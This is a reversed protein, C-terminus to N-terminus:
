LREKLVYMRIKGYGKAMPLVGVYDCDVTPERALAVASGMAETVYVEGPPTIPEIRAALTVHAGFFTPERCIYDHGAFVPGYHGSLRLSLDVDLGLAQFDTERITRQIALGCKACSMADEFVVYIADGWSNRYLVRSGFSELVDSVRGMFEAHFIPLHHEELASFGKVDGFLVARPERALESANPEAPPRPKPEFESKPAVVHVPLSLAEWAAINGDTGVGSGGKGDYVAIMRLGSDLAEARIMALGMAYDACYTFLSDDNLYKGDTAYSVSGRGDLARTNCRDYCARFRAIWEPGAGAVSQEVFEDRNFPLVVHLDIGRELCQEAVIIDAGAALSGFAFGIPHADLIRAIQETVNTEQDAPFRGPQGPPAIIHGAFFMVDPTAIPDLIGTSLEAEACILKLQKRTTARATYDAAKIVSADGLAACARAVDGLVMAAEAVTAAHWYKGIESDPEESSCADLTAQALTASKERDGGLYFLTAANVAPYSNKERRYVDEYAEAAGILLASRQAEPAGLAQDKLIRAGLSQPDVDQQRGVGLQAYLDQGREIAGSRVVSRVLLYRLHATAANRADPGMEALPREEVEVLGSEALDAAKFHDGRREADRVREAWAEAANDGGIFDTVRTLQSWISNALPVGRELAHRGFTTEPKPIFVRTM